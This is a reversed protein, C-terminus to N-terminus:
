ICTFLWSKFLQLNNKYIRKEVKVPLVDVHGIIPLEVLGIPKKNLENKNQEYWQDVFQDENICKNQINVLKNINELTSELTIIRQELESIKQLLIVKDEVYNFKCHNSQKIGM